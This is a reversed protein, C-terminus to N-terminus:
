NMAEPARTRQHRCSIFIQSKGSEPATMQLYPQPQKALNLKPVPSSGDRSSRASKAPSTQPSPMPTQMMDLTVCAERRINANKDDCLKM